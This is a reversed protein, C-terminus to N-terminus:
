GRTVAESLNLILNTIETLAALEVANLTTERISDGIELLKDAEEPQGEYAQIQAEYARQLLNLEHKRPQRSTVEEFAFQIRERDNADPMTRLIRDAFARSAEIFQPDNLLVLAQLPTNTTERQMVCLERNPADFAMMSPPPLTRKWYTYLSRRYLAAGKDQWFVQSTAPSSGYHSVARWLGDPQYPKVSSGGIWPVLLGSVKLATDRIFEGQLRFRPGYSLLRNNPDISLSEPKVISQQRYTNSMVIQKVMRKVQWGSEVFDVALTDLLEPHSPTEGQSGFDASSGVLGKGFFIQWLRNVTVRSTLPHAPDVLWAALTLRNIPQGEPLPPLFAPTGPEVEEAPKDYNGRELRYTKRPEKAEDMVLTSFTQTMEAHRRRLNALDIRLPELQPDHMAHYTEMRDTQEPARDGPAVALITQIDEPLETGDDTGTIARIRFHGPSSLNLNLNIMCIMVTVYPQKQPDLPKEFTVTLHQAEKVKGLPSWANSLDPDLVNRAPYDPHAYSATARQLPLMGYLDLEDSPLDGASVSLASIGFSGERDGGGYGLSGGAVDPHPDFEIRLGTVAGIDAPLQSSITYAQSFSQTAFISGDEVIRILTPNLNPSKASLPQTDHIALHAGRRALDDRQDQEWAAQLQPRPARLAKELEAVRDKIDAVDQHALATKAEYTPSANRGADGDLGRDSLRNFFALFQYYEKQSVPDFKHDHCQACGMTLGLFVESTTKVRDVAYNNLNEEPITGGEHTIMHNRNFGTAVIQESTADPLLDGAIQERIFQDFPKDENYSQIVWDRWLWMDRGGDISYGNTDAYRSQDMWALAMREGYQPSDLLRDVVREYSKRSRDNVFAHVEERTPPLGTLDYSLRRILTRKDAEPSPALGEQELRALIAYDIDNEPWRKNSVAPRAHRQPPVFAWHAEYQAGQAIWRRFTDIDQESLTLKSKVPPMREDPDEHTIRSFFLSGEPDGPVILKKGGKTEGFLGAELDLRLDRKRSAEDPGHCSLCNESILPRIDRNFSVLASATELSQPQKEISVCSSLTGGLVLALSAAVLVSPQILKSM